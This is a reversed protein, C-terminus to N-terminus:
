YSNLIQAANRPRQHEAYALIKRIPTWKGARGQASTLTNHCVFKRSIVNGSLRHGIQHGPQPRRRADDDFVPAFLEDFPDAIVVPCRCFQRSIAQRDIGFVTQAPDFTIGLKARVLEGRVLSM